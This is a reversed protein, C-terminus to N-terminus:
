RGDDITKPWPTALRCICWDCPPQPKHQMTYLTMQEFRAEPVLQIQHISLRLPLDPQPAWDPQILFHPRNPSKAVDAALYTTNPFWRLEYAEAKIQDYLYFRYHWGLRQHYLIAKDAAHTKLWAIAEPLGAYAGHDGGIPLGGVSAALASPLLCLLAVLTTAIAWNSWAKLVSWHALRAFAWAVGLVGIPVLLLLYRDWIQVSTTIHLVLFGLAWLALWWGVRTCKLTPASRDPKWFGSLDQAGFRVYMWGVRRQHLRGPDNMATQVLAVVIMSGLGLWIPWSATFYWLLKAWEVMRGFWASPEILQLAGYNRVSLDWPSPAVAWRTSDWYVLPALVLTAGLLFRLWRSARKLNPTCSRDEGLDRADWLLLLLLPVYLLGQQKTMAAVALWFGAGFGGGSLASLIALQGALVLLPDTYITPAFSLVFPNLLYFLMAVFGSRQGWLRRATAGIVLATLLTVMSNLLRGSAPSAGWWQFAEALLWLFLPPKDPWVTLFFPDDHWFHQAWFSYIAEDERLPFRDLLRLHLNFAM